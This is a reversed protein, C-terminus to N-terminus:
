ITMQLTKSRLSTLRVQNPQIEMLRLEWRRRRFNRDQFMELLQNKHIRVVRARDQIRQCMKKLIQVKVEFLLLNLRRFRPHTRNKISLKDMRVVIKILVIIVQVIATTTM